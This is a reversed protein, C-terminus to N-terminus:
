VLPICLASHITLVEVNFMIVSTPALLLLTSSNPISEVHFTDKLFHIFYSNRMGTTGQILMWLPPISSTNRFHTLVITFSIKQTPLLSTLLHPIPSLSSHIQTSSRSFDIFRIAIEQLPLPITTHAWNHNSDFDCHGLMDIDDIEM